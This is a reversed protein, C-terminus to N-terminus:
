PGGAKDKAFQNTRTDRKLRLWKGCGYSHHWLEDFLGAPNEREFVFRDWAALDGQHEGTPISLSADGGYTFENEHREGCWPCPILLM